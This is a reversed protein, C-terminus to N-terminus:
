GSRPFIHKEALLEEYLDATKKIMIELSFKEAIEIGARGMAARLEGDELLLQIAKALGQGDQPPVLFGNKGHEVLDPIGGVRSAVLPKGLAMAEVLVRGMGENLSPLVFIDFAAIIEPVNDQWGLFLINKELGLERAKRELSDRLYGDGTFAFYAEPHLPLLEKAAELLFEPGKVPVLRGVTGILVAKDPIRLSKKFARIRSPDLSRFKDLDVGSHIICLKNRPAAGFKVTDELEGRTLAVIRDALPATKKEFFIFLRTALPGFYGFFVHGHPTHVIVPTGALKAALRGIFGAKSTHTHVVLPREKLILRYFFILSLLDFVPHVRRVLFPNTIIRLGKRQANKLDRGAAAEEQPSMQSEFTSGKVLIVEHGLECLKLCALLVTEASGGKDQRTILNLIKIKVM